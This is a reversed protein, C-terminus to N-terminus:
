EKVRFDVEYAMNPNCFGSIQNFYVLTVDFFTMICLVACPERIKNLFGQSKKKMNKDVKKYMRQIGGYM